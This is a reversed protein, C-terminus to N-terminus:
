NGGNNDDVLMQCFCVCVSVYLSGRTSRIVVFILFFIMTKTENWECVFIHAEFPSCHSHFLKHGYTKASACMCSVRVCRVTLQSCKAKNINGFTWSRNHKLQHTRIKDDAWVCVCVCEALEIIKEIQLQSHRTHGKFFFIQVTRTHALSDLLHMRIRDLM